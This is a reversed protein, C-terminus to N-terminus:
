AFAFQHCKSEQKNQSLAFLYVKVQCSWQKRHSIFSATELPPIRSSSSCCTVEIKDSETLGWLHYHVLSRTWPIRWALIRSHIAMEKELLISARTLNVGSSGVTVVRTTSTPCVLANWELSAPCVWKWSGRLELKRLWGLSSERGQEKEGNVENQEKIIKM